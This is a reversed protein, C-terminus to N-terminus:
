RAIREVPTSQLLLPLAIIKKTAEGWEKRKVSIGADM